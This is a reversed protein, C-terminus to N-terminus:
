LMSLVGGSLKSRKRLFVSRANLLHHDASGANRRGFKRVSVAVSRM